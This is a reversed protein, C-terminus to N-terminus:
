QKKKFEGEFYDAQAFDGQSYYFAALNRYADAYDPNIAITEKWLKEAEEPKGQNYYLIGLNFRVDDYDPNVALEMKYEEEAAELEGRSAYILGLNNHAMPELANLELAKKYEPEAKDLSGELYYMAGLNRHALPSHPSNKVANLWFSLKDRFNGTHFFTIAAFLIIVASAATFNRKLGFDLKKMIDTELLLIFFGALPMYVRHEIFDAAIKPNPRIFSPLLFLLFWAAGFIVFGRRAHKSFFLAPTILALALIGYVFTTDQILPLVSLNFPFIIKGIFQILAPLNLLMSKVMNAVTMPMPNDSLAVSRMFFWLGSVALWGALVFFPSTEVKRAGLEPFTSVDGKKSVGRKKWILWYYLICVPMLMLASEKTFLALCFFFIHALCYRIKKTELFDLFFIFSALGFLALLSDNRGPIWSVAQALVPHVSFLLSFFLAPRFPYGLKSFFKFVLCSAALHIIINTLHYIFPNTGGLQADFLLSVTLLPRYYAASSHLIHFVEHRFAELVNSLRSLFNHNNIVLANDDLYTFGFFLSKFYVLLGAGSIFVCALAGRLSVSGPGSKKKM